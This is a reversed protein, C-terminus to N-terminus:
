RGGTLQRRWRGRSCCCRLAKGGGGAGLRWTGKLQALGGTRSTVLRMSGAHRSLRHWAHCQEHFRWTCDGVFLAMHPVPCDAITFPLHLSLASDLLGCRPTTEGKRQSKTGGFGHLVRQVADFILGGRRGLVPCSLNIETFCQGTSGM